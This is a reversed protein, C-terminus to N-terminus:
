SEGLIKTERVLPAPTNLVTFNTRGLSQGRETIVNVRWEGAFINGKVSYGRYGGDRGGVVQFLLRDTTVWENKADDFYQWEHFVPVNLHTPAFVASYFYLPEGEIHHIKPHYRQTFDTWRIPETQVKYLGNETKVVLHYVSAEKLSLPIPPIINTFYLTNIFIFVSGLSIVLTHKTRKIVEPTVLSLVMIILAILILSVGGSALFVGADMKGLLVPVYLTVFFFIAVFLINMQFEFRGYYNKFFENGLFLAGLIVIFLWSSALSASRTYFVFYGSFLSGMAFQAFLPSWSVLRSMIIGGAVNSESLASLCITVVAVLLYAFLVLSSWLVDIRDLAINDIVFGAFFAVTMLRERKAFFFELKQIIAM